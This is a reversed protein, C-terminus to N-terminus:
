EFISYGTLFRKNRIDSYIKFSSLYNNVERNRNMSIRRVFEDYSCIQHVQFQKFTYCILDVSNTKSLYEREIVPNLDTIYRWAIIKDKVFLWDIIAFINSFDNTNKVYDFHLQRYNIYHCIKAKPFSSLYQLM